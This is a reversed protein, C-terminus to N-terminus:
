DKISKLQERYVEGEDSQGSQEFCKVLLDLVYRKKQPSADDQQIMWASRLFGIAPFYNAQCFYLYGVDVLTEAVEPDKDGLMRNRIEMAQLFLLEAEPYKKQQILIRGIKQCDTALHLQYKEGAVAFIAHAKRYMAEGEIAEGRLMCIDGINDALVAVAPEQLGKNQELVLLEDMKAILELTYQAAESQGLNLRAFFDTSPLDSASAAKVIMAAYESPILASRCMLQVRVANRLDQYRITGTETLINGLPRRMRKTKQLAEQFQISTILGSSTLLEGIKINYKAPKNLQRSCAIADKLCQSFQSSEFPLLATWKPMILCFIQHADQTLGQRACISAAAALLTISNATLNAGNAVLKAVKDLCERAKNTNHTKLHIASMRCYVPVVADDAFGESRMYIDRAQELLKIAEDWRQQGAETDSQKILNAPDASFRPASSVKREEPKPTAVSQTEITASITAAAPPAPPNISSIQALIKETAQAFTVKHQRAYQLSSVALGGSMSTFLIKRQAQLVLELEDDSLFNLVRLLQGIPTKKNAKQQQLASELQQQSIFGSLVLLDGIRMDLVGARGVWGNHVWSVAASRVMAPRDDSKINHPKM